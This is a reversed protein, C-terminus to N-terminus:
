SGRLVARRHLYEIEDIEGQAYREDLLQQASPSGGVPPGPNVSNSPRSSRMLALVLGIVLGVLILVLLTMFVWGAWGVGDHMHSWGDGDWGRGMPGYGDGRVIDM